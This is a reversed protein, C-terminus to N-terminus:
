ESPGSGFALRAGLYVVYGGGVWMAVARFIMELTLQALPIDSIDPASYILLGGICAVVFGCVIRASRVVVRAIKYEKSNHDTSEASDRYYANVVIGAVLALAAWPGLFSWSDM